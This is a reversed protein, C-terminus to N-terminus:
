SGRHAAVRVVLVLASLAQESSELGALADSQNRIRSHRADAIRAAPQRSLCDASPIGTIGMGPALAASLASIAEPKGM